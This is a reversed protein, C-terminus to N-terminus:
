IMLCKDKGKEDEQEGRQIPDCQGQIGDTSVSTDECSEEITRSNIGIVPSTRVGCSLVMPSCQSNGSLLASAQQQPMGSFVACTQTDRFDGTFKHLLKTCKGLTTNSPGSVSGLPTHM